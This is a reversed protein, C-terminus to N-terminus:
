VLPSRRCYNFSPLNLVSKMKHQYALMNMKQREEDERRRQDRVAEFARRKELYELKAIEIESQIKKRANEREELRAQITANDLHQEDNDGRGSSASSKMGLEKDAIRAQSILYKSKEEALFAERRLEDERRKQELLEQARQQKHVVYEQSVVVRPAAYSPTDESVSSGLLYAEDKHYSHSGHPSAFSGARIRATSTRESNPESVHGSDSTVTFTLGKSPLDLPPVELSPLPLKDSM